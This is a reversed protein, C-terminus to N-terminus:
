ATEQAAFESCAEVFGGLGRTQTQKTTLGQASARQVAGLLRERDAKPMYLRFMHTSANGRHDAPTELPPSALTQRLQDALSGEGLQTLLDVCQELM